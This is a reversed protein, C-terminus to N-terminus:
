IYLLFWGGAFMYIDKQRGGNNIMDQRQREKLNEPPVSLGSLRDVYVDQWYECNAAWTVLLLSSAKGGEDSQRHGERSM